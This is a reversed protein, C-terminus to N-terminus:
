QLFFVDGSTESRKADERRHRILLHEQCHVTMFVVASTTPNSLAGLVVHLAKISRRPCHFSPENLLNEFLSDM